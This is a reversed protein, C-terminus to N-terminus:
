DLSRETELWEGDISLWRDIEECDFLIVEYLIIDEIGTM